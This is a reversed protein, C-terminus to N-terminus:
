ADKLKNSSQESKAGSMADSLVLFQKYWKAMWLIEIGALQHDQWEEEMLVTM